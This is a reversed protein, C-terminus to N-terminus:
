SANVSQRLLTVVGQNIVASGIAPSGHPQPAGQQITEMLALWLGVEGQNAVIQWAVVVKGQGGIHRQLQRPRGAWRHQHTAAAKILLDHRRARHAETKRSSGHVPEALRRASQVGMGM